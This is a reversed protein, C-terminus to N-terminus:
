NEILFRRSYGKGDRQAQLVYLGKTLGLQALSLSGGEANMTSRYVLKGMADVMSIQYPKGNPYPFEVYLLDKAPNPYLNINIEKAPIAQVSSVITDCPSGVLKGLRFNAFSSPAAFTPYNAVTDAHLIFNSPVFSQNINNVMSITAIQQGTPGPEDLRSQILIQKYNPAMEPASSHVTIYYVTDQEIDYQYSGNIIGASPSTRFYFKSGDPSLNCYSWDFPSTYPQLSRTFRYSFEGTCRDFNFVYLRRDPLNSYHIFTNGDASFFSSTNTQPIHLIDPFTIKQMSIGSPSLLGIFLEDEYIGGKIVWWDRGNAHRCAHLSGASSLENILVNNKSILNKSPIDLIAYTFYLDARGIPSESLPLYQKFQGYFLYVKTSDGPDNLFLPGQTYAVMRNDWTDAPHPMDDRWLKEAVVGGSGNILRWGNSAFVLEGTHRDAFAARSFYTPLNLAIGDVIELLTDADFKFLM